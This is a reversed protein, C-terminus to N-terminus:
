IPIVIDIDDQNCIDLNLKAFTTPNYIEYQVKKQAAINALNEFKLIILPEEEPICYTKKLLSECGKLNIMSIANNNLLSGNLTQLENHTTTLQFVYNSEAPIIINIGDTPYTELVENKVKNVIESSTM